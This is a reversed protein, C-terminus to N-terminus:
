IILVPDNPFSQLQLASTGTCSGIVAQANAAVPCLVDNKPHVYTVHMYIIQVCMNYQVYATHMLMTHLTKDPIQLTPSAGHM